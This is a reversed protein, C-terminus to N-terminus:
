VSDAVATALLLVGILLLCRHVVRIFQDTSVSRTLRHGILAAVITLPLCMATLRIVDGTVAGRSVHMALVTTGGLLFYSQLNARFREAPWHRLTGFIVLPPGATNYAGGLIGAILGFASAWRSSLIRITKRSSLSWAAFSIVVIALLVKIVAESGASLLWIGIPIGGLAAVTLRGTERFSIQRWERYLILIANFASVVAVLPAAMQAPIVFALLPMAILAEGFGVTSRVLSGVFIIGCVLAVDLPDM